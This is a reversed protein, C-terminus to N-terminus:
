VNKHGLIKKIHTIFEVASMELKMYNCTSCCPVCNDLTYGKSSDTRDIGNIEIAIPFQKTKRISPKEGCYHCNGKMLTLAQEHTLEFPRNRKKANTKYTGIALRNAALEPDIRNQKSCGCSLKKTRQRLYRGLVKTPKGCDCICNWIILKNKGSAPIFYGARSTVLLKGFKKGVLPIPHIGSKQNGM